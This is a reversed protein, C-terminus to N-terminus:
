AALLKRLEYRDVIRMVQTTSFEGNNVTRTKLENLQRAISACNVKKNKLILNEISMVIGKNKEDFSKSMAMAGKERGRDTFNSTGVRTFDWRGSERRKDMGQKIRNRLVTVENEYVVSMIQLTFRDINQQEVFVIDIGSDFITQITASKRGLRDISKVILTAQHARCYELAALLQERNDKRGSVQEIFHNDLEYNNERAFRDIYDRQIELSSLQEKTSSRIYAVAKKM